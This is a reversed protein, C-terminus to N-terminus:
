IFGLATKSNMVDIEKQIEVVRSKAKEIVNSIANYKDIEYIDM